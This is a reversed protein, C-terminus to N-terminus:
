KTLRHIRRMVEVDPHVFRIRVGGSVDFPGVVEGDLQVPDRPQDPLAVRVTLRTGTVMSCGERIALGFTSIDNTELYISTEGEIIEVRLGVTM